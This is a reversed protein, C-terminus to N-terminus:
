LKIQASVFLQLPQVNTGYVTQASIGGTVPQYPNAQVQFPNGPNYFNGAQFGSGAGYFCGIKPGANTWPAKTGGFCAGFANVALLSLKVRKSAEYGVGVNVLLQAPERFAGPKDFQQTFPDPATLFGPCSQADYPAGGAAGYPYRPDNATSGALTTCGAGPDIGIGQTPSGYRGGATLQATPTVNWRDHKYNVILTAVHPTVYSSANASYGSGFTQNYPSYYATPDLLPQVPANWYPNAFSGAVCAPDAGGSSTYCPAAASGNTPTGCRADSAHAACFSTYANYQRVGINVNDLATSGNPLLQYRAKSYTYTYALQAAFGNRAFDGKRVALEVGSVDNKLADIMSSFVTTPDLIVNIAENRTTRKFPTVKWSLDSGKVQHEWSFDVNISEEPPIYHAPSTFGFAYFNTADYSAVDAGARNYFLYASSTPQLYRGYGARLVNLSDVQFTAGLRPQFGGYWISAPTVNTFAVQTGAPCSNPTATLTLGGLPSFCHYADYSNTFLTRGAASANGPNPGGPTLASPIDYRFSDYRVATDVTLRPTVKWSDSLTLNAFRPTVNNFSGNLGSGVAFYECPGAGCTMTGANAVTIPNPAGAGQGRGQLGNSAFVNTGPVVYRAEGGGNCYVPATGTVVKTVPDQVAGYCVGGTPNTSDVLVAVPNGTSPFGNNWRSTVAYTYGGTLNLLHNGVNDAVTLGLGRTHTPLIYDNPTFSYGADQSANPDNNLWDSYLSYGYLRVFANPGMAHTYQLKFIADNIKQNGNTNRDVAGSLGSGPQQAPFAYQVVQGLNAATLAGGTPGTYLSHAAYHFAGGGTNSGLVDTLYNTVCATNAATLAPTCLPYNAGQYSAVGTNFFSTAAPGFANWSDNYSLQLLSIQGLAQVDDKLGDHKHPIGFHVNAINELDGVYQDLGFTIPLYLYGNPASGFGNVYCGGTATPLGCDHVLRAYPFGGYDYQASAGDFPDVYRSAQNYGATGVYYSFLRNPSAGGLEFQLKHYFAPAGLGADATGTGPFTGTKIVQNVFGALGSSQASGPQSGTYVQVEQQGLSSLTSSPYADYARQVPVGDYEYGLQTYNGGRVYVAQAWGQQGAPVFVGPVSAIASYAQNLSGGGGLPAAAAAQTANISYVDASQGNKVLDNASRSTTKGIQRLQLTATLALEQHQDALVTVGTITGVSYNAKEAVVTYTDPALSIFTFRGQADTTATAAQSPSVASIQAGAIPGRTSSDTLVGTIQGTTGALVWTGQVLLVLLAFVALVSRSISRRM